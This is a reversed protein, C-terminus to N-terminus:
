RTPNISTVSRIPNTGASNSSHDAHPLRGRGIQGRPARPDLKQRDIHIAHQGVAGDHDVVAAHFGLIEVDPVAHGIREPM